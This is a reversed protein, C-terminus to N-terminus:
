TRRVARDFHILASEIIERDGPVAWRGIGVNEKVIQDTQYADTFNDVAAAYVRENLMKQGLIGVNRLRNRWTRKAM